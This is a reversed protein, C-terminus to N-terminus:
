NEYDLDCVAVLLMDTDRGDSSLPLRLTEFHIPRGEFLGDVVSHTPERREVTERWEREIRERYDTDPHEDVFKGTMDFNMRDAIASGYLRFRFRLPDRIVDVLMVWGLIYAFELPDIDGRSPFRRSGAKNRWYAYLRRVPDHRFPFSAANVDM